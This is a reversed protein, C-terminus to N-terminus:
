PAGHLRGRLILQAKLYRWVTPLFVAEESSLQEQLLIIIACYLILSIVVNRTNSRVALRKNLSFLKSYGRQKVTLLM